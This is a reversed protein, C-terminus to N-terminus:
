YTPPVKKRFLCGPFDPSKCTAPVREGRRLDLLFLDETKRCFSFTGCAAGIILEIEVYAGRVESGGEEIFM